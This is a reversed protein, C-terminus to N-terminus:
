LRIGGRSVRYYKRRRMRRRRRRRYAM